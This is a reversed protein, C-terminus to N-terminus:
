QRRATEASCLDKAAAPWNPYRFDFGTELLRAPIVRRSKLLLETETRMAVAGIELMWKSAPLGIPIHAETRLARMFEVNPLPQPATVNIVGAFEERDILWMLARTFDEYHIWSVYQRGDGQQGGLGFRVLRYLMDFIGGRDPSMILSSRLLVLRTPPISAERATAEWKTAVEISFRWSRPADPEHGGIVGTREDNPADYRHAYITATSAQLWVRPPKTARAIAQAVARTSQIRSELVERKNAATYRTNVSRGALNIVVDCGDIEKSWGDVEIGDWEVVRWPAQYRRRSLVVVEDGQRSFARALITGVQGSGGPIVVKM